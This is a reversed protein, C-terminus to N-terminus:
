SNTVVDIDSGISILQYMRICYGSGGSSGIPLALISTYTRILEIKIPATQAKKSKHIDIAFFLAEHAKKM